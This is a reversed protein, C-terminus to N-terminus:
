WGQPQIQTVRGGPLQVTGATPSSFTFTIGGDNGMSTPKQYACTACQGGRYKDLTGTATVGGNMNSLTGIAVYWVPDGAATYSYMTVVLVGHQVQINYGRGSEGPNWWLGTVPTFALPAAGSGPQGIYGPITYGTLMATITGDNMMVMGVGPAYWVDRVYGSGRQERVHLANSFTGAPTTVTELANALYRSMYNQGGMMSGTGMVGAQWVEVNQYGGSGSMMTGPSVPNKLLWEPSTYSMMSFQTGAANAGTGGFYYMGNPDMRYFDTAYPACTVGVNCVYTTHMATLGSFGAWTQGGRMVVTSTAWPGGTYVYDYRAGDVLPFYAATSMPGGMMQAIGPGSMLAILSVAMLKFM